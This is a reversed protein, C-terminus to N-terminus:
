DLAIMLTAGVARYKDVGQALDGSVNEFFVNLGLDPTFKFQAGLTIPIIMSEIDTFGTTSGKVDDGIQFSVTPGVYIGVFDELKFMVFLPIDFYTIKGEINQGSVTSKFARETYMLGTKLGFKEALNFVATAGLQYGLGQKDSTSDEIKASGSRFGVEVAPMSYSSGGGQGWVEQASAISNFTVLILITAFLKNM